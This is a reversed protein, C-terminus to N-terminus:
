GDNYAPVWNTSDVEEGTQTSLLSLRFELASGERFNYNCDTWYDAGTWRCSGARGYDTQWVVEPKLGDAAKDHVVIHDGQMYFCGTASDLDICENDLTHPGDTSAGAPALGGALLLGSAATAGATAILTRIARM